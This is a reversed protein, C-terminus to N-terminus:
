AGTSGPRELEAHVGALGDGNSSTTRSGPLARPLRRERARDPRAAKGMLDGGFVLADVEYFAAARLFKRFTLQSGHLDAAFFIRTPRRKSRVM